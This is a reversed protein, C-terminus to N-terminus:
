FRKLLKGKKLMRKTDKRLLKNMYNYCNNMYLGTQGNELSYKSLHSDPDSAANDLVRGSMSPGTEGLYHDNYGIKSCRGQYIIDHNHKFQHCRKCM